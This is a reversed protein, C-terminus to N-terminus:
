TPVYELNCQYKETLAIIYSVPINKQTPRCSQSTFAYLGTVSMDKLRFVSCLGILHRLLWLLRHLTHWIWLIHIHASSPFVSWKLVSVKVLRTFGAQNHSLECKTESSLQFFFSFTLVDTLRSSWAIKKSSSFYITMSRNSLAQARLQNDLLSHHKQM